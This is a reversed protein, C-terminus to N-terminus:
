PKSSARAPKGNVAPASTDLTVQMTIAERSIRAAQELEAIAMITPKLEAPADDYAIAAWKGALKPLIARPVAKWNAPSTNSKNSDLCKLAQGEPIPGNIEEWRILHVARWRAQLPLDNNIKRELYGDKSLRETGIPKWLKAAVGRREGKKFQTEKM